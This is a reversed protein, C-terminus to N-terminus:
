KKKVDSKPLGCIVVVDKGIKCIMEGMVSNSPIILEGETKGITDLLDSLQKLNFKTYEEGIFESNTCLLKSQTTDLITVSNVNAKINFKESMKNDEQLRDASYKKTFRLLTLNNLLGKLWERNNEM